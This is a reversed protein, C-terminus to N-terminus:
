RYQEEACAARLADCRQEAELAPFGAAQAAARVTPFLATLDALPDAQKLVHINPATLAPLPGQEIAPSAPPLAGVAEADVNLLADVASKLRAALDPQTDLPVNGPSAPAM